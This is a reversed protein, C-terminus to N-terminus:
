RLLKTKIVQCSISTLNEPVNADGGLFIHNEEQPNCSVHRVPRSDQIEQAREGMLAVRVNLLRGHVSSSANQCRM